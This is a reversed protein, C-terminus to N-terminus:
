ISSQVIIGSIHEIKIIKSFLRLVSEGGCKRHSEELFTRRIIYEILQDFKITQSDKSSSIKPLIRIANIKIGTQSTM